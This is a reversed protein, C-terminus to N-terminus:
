DDHDIDPKGLWSSIPPLQVTSAVKLAPSHGVAHAGPMDGGVKKIAADRSVSAFAECILELDRGEGNGRLNKSTITNESSHRASAEVERELREGFTM